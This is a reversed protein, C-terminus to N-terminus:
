NPWEWVTRAKLSLFSVHSSSGTGSALCLKSSDRVDTLSTINCAKWYSPLAVFVLSHYGRLCSACLYLMELCVFLCVCVLFVCMCMCHLSSAEQSVTSQPAASCTTKMKRTNWKSGHPTRKVPPSSPKTMPKTYTRTHTYLCNIYFNPRSLSTVLAIQWEHECGRHLNWRSDIGDLKHKKRQCILDASIVRLARSSKSIQRTLSALQGLEWAPGASLGQYDHMSM